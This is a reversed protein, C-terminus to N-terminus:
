NVHLYTRVIKLCWNYLLWSWRAGVYVGIAPALNSPLIVLMFTVVSTALPFAQLSNVFLTVVGVIFANTCIASATLVTTVVAIKKTVKVVEITTSSAFFAGVSTALAGTGLLAPLPM